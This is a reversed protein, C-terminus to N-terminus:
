GRGKLKGPLINSSWVTFTSHQDQYSTFLVTISSYVEDFCPQSGSNNSVKRFIFVAMKIIRIFYKEKIESSTQHTTDDTSTAENKPVTLQRRPPQLETQRRRPVAIATKWPGPPRNFL